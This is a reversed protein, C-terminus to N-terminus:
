LYDYNNWAAPKNQIKKLKIINKIRILKIKNEVIM